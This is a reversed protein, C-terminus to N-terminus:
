STSVLDGVLTMPLTVGKLRQDTLWLRSLVDEAPSHQAAKRLNMGPELGVKVDSLREQNFTEGSRPIDEELDKRLTM